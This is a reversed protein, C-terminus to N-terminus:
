QPSGPSRFDAVSSLSLGRFIRRRVLDRLHHLHARPGSTESKTQSPDTQGLAWTGSRSGKGVVTSTQGLDQSPGGVRKFSM